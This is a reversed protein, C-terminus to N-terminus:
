VIRVETQLAIGFSQLVSNSLEQALMLVDEGSACGKNVLVLAHDSHVAADGRFRGKSGIKELLWAAPLKVTDAEETEFAPLDPYQQKLSEYKGRSVVPNKFFSGANGLVAPDPLKRRRIECVTEFLQAATVTTGALAEQLAYYEINPAFEHSLGLTVSLVILSQSSDHKFVSDRYAFECDAKSMTSLEGSRTDFAELEVFVQELEVGYAGINQIPAAGVTGPILALNEIGYLENNLCYEVLKHWNEGCAVKLSVGDALHEIGQCNMHVLLGPFDNVFLTNSGGGLIQIPLNQQAAFSLAARLDSVQRVDAFYAAQQHIGFSNFTALDINQQIKMPM